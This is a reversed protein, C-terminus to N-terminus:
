SLFWGAVCSLASKFICSEFAAQVLLEEKPKQAQIMRWTEVFRATRQKKEGMLNKMMVDFDESKLEKVYDDQSDAM